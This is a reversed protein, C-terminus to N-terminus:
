VTRTARRPCNPTTMMPTYRLGLPTLELVNFSYLYSLSYFCIFYPRVEEDEDEELVVENEWVM